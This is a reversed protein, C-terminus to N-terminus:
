SSCSVVIEGAASPPPAAYHEMAPQEDFPARLVRELRETESFDGAQAAAIAAQALYNRLVYKPNAARMAALREADTGSEVATRERFRTSWAHWGARDAFLEALRDDAPTTHRALSSLRRFFITYDVRNRELLMLAGAMLQPDDDRADALGFKARQLALFRRRYAPEYVALAAQAAPEDILTAFAAALAHCNWRGITPQRDFAYRGQEDTHNCIHGPEYAGLFGYPGYDLTNGLISMNDTNLVGHAFGIAQWQAVLEATRTVIEALLSAYRERDDAIPALAPYFGAVVYDALARLEDFRQAYHFYEFTGFRVFSPSLRSLVATTEIAERRVTEPSSVMALARTTPVGLHHMAECALYERITSRLVARGDGFRSFATIGAGKLQWDWVEGSPKRIEGLSIARGDGLQAVFTGFQHGAYVAATPPTARFRAGGAVIALFEPRQFEAVDLDLLAAADPNVLALRPDAVPTPLREEVFREGLGAYGPGVTLTELTRASPLTLPTM